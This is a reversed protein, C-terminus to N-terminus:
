PLSLHLFSLHSQFVQKTGLCISPSALSFLMCSLETCQDWSAALFSETHLHRTCYFKVQLFDFGWVVNHAFTFICWRCPAPVVAQSNFMFIPGPYNSESVRTFAFIFSRCLFVQLVWPMYIGWLFLLRYECYTLIWLSMMLAGYAFVMLVVHPVVKLSLHVLDVCSSNAGLILSLPFIQFVDNFLCM